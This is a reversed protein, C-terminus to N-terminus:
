DNKIGEIKYKTPLEQKIVPKGKTFFKWGDLTTKVISRNFKYEKLKYPKTKWSDSLYLCYLKKIPKNFLKDWIIKYASLQIQHAPYEKGTKYDILCLDKGIMCVLDATGSYPIGPHYLMIESALPTPNQERWFTLFGVLRKQVRWDGKISKGTDSIFDLKTTITDGNVLQDILIHILTGLEAKENRIDISRWGNTMLWSDYAAGKSWVNEITTVSPKYSTLDKADPSYWRGNLDHREVKYPNVVLKNQKLDIKIKSKSISENM